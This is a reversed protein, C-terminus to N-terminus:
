AGFIWGAPLSSLQVNELVMRNGGGMDIVVDAGDQSVSYVTGPDVMVRDGEAANFGLVYDLGAEFFTHLIDAGLGGSMTDNGRDGSVFDNGDDGRVVDNGQGGRVIDDGVGGGVVDDGLNGYALDAGTEGFIIDNGKGGVVWDDGLGGNITDQGVNGNIDDFGSGGLMRDDGDEGRLYSAGDGGVVTDNGGGAMVTDDGEGGFILNDRAGATVSDDGAGGDYSFQSDPLNRVDDGAGGREEPTPFIDGGGGGGGGSPPPPSPPPEPDPEPPPPPPPIIAQQTLSGLNVASIDALTRGVLEVADEALGGDAATDAFVFVSGGVEVAVYRKGAGILGQAVTLAAAYTAATGEAYEGALYGFRLQDESSWDMIRDLTSQGVGSHGIGSWYTDAGAGLYITDKGGGGFISDSGAGGLLQDDGDRGDLTDAGGAGSLSDDGSWGRVLNGQDDGTLVDGFLSGDINEFGSQSDSGQGAGLNQVSSVALNVTVGATANLYSLTDSGAGGDISDDGGGGQIYDSGSGGSLTDAGDLGQIQDDGAAGFLSDAGSGGIIADDAATGSTTQGAIPPETPPAVAGSILNDAGFNALGLNRLVVADDAAGNNSASDAFVILAAGVSVAVYDAAGAAILGNAFTLAAAYSAASGEAYNTASVAPGGFNLRDNVGWNIVTDLSGAAVGSDGPALSFLNSASGGSMTDAGAGGALTNEGGDGALSDAGSGGSLSDDGAGGFLTDAGGQGNLTDAHDEGSLSDDGEGGSLLDDGGQGALTDSGSTGSLTDAGFSGTQVQYNPLADGINVASIDSLTRALLVVADDPAGDDNATDAFVVVDAGVQMAIYNVQGAAIITSALTLAADYSSATLELYNTNANAVGGLSLADNADWDLIIDLSGAAVGSDGASLKFIDGGAGGGINDRGQGGSLVDNGSGGSLLDAGGGGSLSDGGGEGTLSDAGGLGSLTDAGEGGFLADAYSGGSLSDDGASGTQSDGPPDVVPAGGVINAADIDALTRGTLVIADEAVGNNGFSDAFVVVDSGVGVAVFNVVGGAIQANALSLASAYDAATLELYDGSTAATAFALHDGAEWDSIADLAGATVGSDGAAIVFTDAGSGGTLTDRGGGGALRDDGSGGSLLDSSAKGDLTDDGGYGYLRDSQTAGAQSDGGASGLSLVSGDPYLPSEGSLSAFTVTKGTLGSVLVAAGTAEDFSQVITGSATEGPQSFVLSDFAPNFATAQAVTITEFFFTAV